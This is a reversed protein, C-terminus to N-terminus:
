IHKIPIFTFRSMGDHDISFECTVEVNSDKLQVMLAETMEFNRIMVRKGKMVEIALETIDEDKIEM